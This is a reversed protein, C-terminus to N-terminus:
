YGYGNMMDEYQNQRQWYVVQGDYWGDNYGKRYSEPRDYLMMSSSSRNYSGDLFGRNYGMEYAPSYAVVSMLVSFCMVLTAFFTKM